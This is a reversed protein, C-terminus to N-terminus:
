SFMADIESNTIAVLDTTKVYGSLDTATSGIKEWASNVWIYEDYIDQTSTTTSAILYITGAEGTTPLTTVVSYKIGSVGAIATAIAGTVFETNAIQQTTAGATATPATPTGTLVPSALDAKTGVANDIAVKVATGTPCADTVAAVASQIKVGGIVSETAAPLTYESATILGKMKTILYLTGTSDLYKVTAM